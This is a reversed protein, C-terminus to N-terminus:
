RASSSALTRVVRTSGDPRVRLFHTGSGLILRDSGGGRTLVDVVRSQGDPVFLTFVRRVPSSLPDESIPDASTLFSMQWSWTSLGDEGAESELLYKGDEVRLGYTFSGDENFSSEVEETNPPVGTIFVLSIRWGKPSELRFSGDPEAPALPDSIVGRRDIDGGDVRAVVNWMSDVWGFSCGLVQDEHALSGYSDCLGVEDILAGDWDFGLVGDDNRPERTDDDSYFPPDTEVSTLYVAKTAM